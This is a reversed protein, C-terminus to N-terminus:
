ARAAARRRYMWLGLGGLPLMALWTSAEPVVPQNIIEEVKLDVFAKTFSIASNGGARLLNLDWAAGGVGTDFALPPYDTETAGDGDGVVGGAATTYGGLGDAVYAIGNKDVGLAAVPGPASMPNNIVVNVLAFKAELAAELTAKTITGDGVDRDEDTILIINVASGPRFALNDLAYKIARYGDEFSGSAVYSSASAAAGAAGQFNAEIHGATAHGAVSSGYGILAYQNAFGVANGLGATNLGAELAAIMTGGVWAQEGAMSGSEDMVVVIDAFTASASANISGLALFAAAAVSYSTLKTYQM